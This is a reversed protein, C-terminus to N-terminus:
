AHLTSARHYRGHRPELQVMVLSRPYCVMRVSLTTEQLSEMRPPLVRFLSHSYWLELAAQPLEPFCESASSLLSITVQVM